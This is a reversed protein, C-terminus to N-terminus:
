VFRRQAELAGALQDQAQQLRELMGNFARALRNLEVWGQSEPLRRRLDGTLRIDEATNAVQHLPRLARGGVLWIAILAAIFTFTGSLWLFGRIGTQTSQLGRLPQ